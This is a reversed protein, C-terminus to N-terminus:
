RRLRILFLTLMALALPFLSGICPLGSSAPAPSTSLPVETVASTGSAPAGSVPTHTPDLSGAPPTLSAPLTVASQPAGAPVVEYAIGDAMAIVKQGLAFAAALDPRRAALAFYDESLFAVKITQMRNHDFSTDVWVDETLVFAQSGLIRVRGTAEAMPAAPAEAGAMVGQGAAKNVADQGSTLPAPATAMASYQQDALREQEVSGLPGQETVLYSTYPTVIGFRVSLKIIQDITERDAGHLSIQKLLYGIKRTAWLRPISALPNDSTPQSSGAFVQGTFQFTQEQGNVKGSLTISASSSQGHYRGVLIIQSGSFLDPLPSPYLDYTSVGDFGLSLDTLVPTSIKAYFASLTEDLREGPKVYISAGHHEQALSDLLYTDVDYGVGFAFLRLNAPAAASLNDLIKQVNTEGETPLGDTLFIVYVPRGTGTEAAAELLARNIDTSGQASLSDVWPFAEKVDSAPRLSEAYSEIATSFAILNFRDEPNLHTLIYHAAQQVQQFKEGDMSGSHDMVLIIDKAQVKVATDPRPALMLTFFGDPDSPDTPNRYTLLHFAEGQGVSYYLVFDADPHVNSAEYGVSVHNVTARNVDVEHSPSYVARIPASSRIEVSVSVSDLPAASFKETNLPYIYRVLGNDAPLAQTYELEIRREGQPAIPFIHAQVAGRDAYELLAPDRQTRVIEEYTQRAQKADLVTGQIPKGDVWLTFATVAADQPIPFLYTGEVTWDNPNYFVQDVHTVALQDQITVTVHHYRIGLQAAPPRCLGDPPCPPPCPGPDCIPPDPYIIGDARTSLPMGLSIFLLALILAPLIKTRM